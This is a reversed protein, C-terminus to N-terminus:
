RWVTIAKSNDEGAGLADRAQAWRRSALEIHPADFGLEKCLEAAIAADKALLGELGSIRDNEIIDIWRAISL